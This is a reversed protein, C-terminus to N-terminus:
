KVKKHAINDVGKEGRERGGDRGRNTKLELEGAGESAAEEGRAFV